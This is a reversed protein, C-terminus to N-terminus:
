ANPPTWQDEGRGQHGCRGSAGRLRRWIICYGWGDDPDLQPVEVREYGLAQAIRDLISM